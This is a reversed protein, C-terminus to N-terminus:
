LFPPETSCGTKIKSSPDPRLIKNDQGKFDKSFEYIYAYVVFLWEM